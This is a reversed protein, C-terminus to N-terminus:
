IVYYNEKEHELVRIIGKDLADNLERRARRSSINVLDMYKKLTIRENKQLYDLLRIENKTFEVVLDNNSEMAKIARSGAILTKDSQRMYPIWDGKQSLAFHPKDQSPKVTVKLIIKEEEDESHYIEEIDLPVPPKCCFDAAKTLFYKEEEPDVGIITRNDKVGM